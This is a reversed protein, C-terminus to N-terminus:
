SDFGAACAHEQARGANHPGDHADTCAVLDLTGNYLYPFARGCRMDADIDAATLDDGRRDSVLGDIIEADLGAALRGDHHFGGVDHNPYVSMPMESRTANANSPAAGAHAASSGLPQSLNLHGISRSRAASVAASRAFSAEPASIAARGECATIRAKRLGAS